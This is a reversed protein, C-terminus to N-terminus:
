RSRGSSRALLRPALLRHLPGVLGWVATAARPRTYRLATLLQLGDTDTRRVLLTAALLPSVAELRAQRHTSEAVRWGLVHGPAGEPELRLGLAFRHAGRIGARTLRGSGELARRALLEPPVDVSVPGGVEFGDLYDADALEPVLAARSPVVRRVPPSSARARRRM